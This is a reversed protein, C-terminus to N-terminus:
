GLILTESDMLFVEDGCAAELLLKVFVRSLYRATRWRWKVWWLYQWKLELKPMHVCKAHSHAGRVLFCFPGSVFTYANKNELKRPRTALTKGPFIIGEPSLQPRLDRVDIGFWPVSSGDLLRALFGASARYLVDIM